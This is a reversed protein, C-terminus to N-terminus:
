PKNLTEEDRVRFGLGYVRFGALAVAGRCRGVLVGLHFEVELRFGLESM